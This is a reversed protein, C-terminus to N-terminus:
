VVLELDKERANKTAVDVADLLDRHYTENGFKVSKLAWRTWRDHVNAFYWEAKDPETYQNVRERLKILGEIAASDVFGVRQFDLIISRIRPLSEPDPNEPINLISELWQQARTKRIGLKVPCQVNSQIHRLLNGFYDSENFYFLSDKLYFVFVGPYPTRIQGDPSFAIETYMRESCREGIANSAQRSTKSLRMFVLLSMLITALYISWELSYMLGIVVSLIWILLEFPMAQWYRRLTKAGTIGHYMSHVIIGALSANPIYSLARVAYTLALYITLAAFACALPSRSGAKSLITSAGFSSTCLYGGAFPTLMNAAGLAIIEKSPDVQYGNSVPSRKVLATQGVLMIIIIAPIKPLLATILGVEPWRPIQVRQLGPEIYGVLSFPSTSPDHSHNIIYSIITSLGVTIPLRFSAFCDWFQKKTTQRKAMIACLRGFAVLVVITSIGFAADIRMHSIYRFTGIITVYPPGRTSVGRLGFLVPLQTMMVKICTATTFANVAVPPVLGVLRSLKLAGVVFCICGAFITIGHAVEETSYMGVGLKSLVVHTSHGMLLSGIATASVAINKSTGLFFYLLLGAFSTYLGHATTVNAFQAYVISQPIMVLGVALGAIADRLLWPLRYTILWLPLPLLTLVYRMISKPHPIHEQLWEMVPSSSM